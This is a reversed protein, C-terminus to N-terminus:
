RPSPLIRRPCLNASHVASYAALLLFCHQSRPKLFRNKVEEKQSRGATNKKKIELASDFLFEFGHQVSGEDFIPFWLPRLTDVLLLDLQFELLFLNM